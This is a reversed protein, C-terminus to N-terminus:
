CDYKIIRISKIQESRKKAVSTNMYKQIYTPYSLWNIIAATKNLLRWRPWGYRYWKTRLFHATDIYSKCKM